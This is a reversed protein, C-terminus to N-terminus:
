EGRGPHPRAQKVWLTVSGDPSGEDDYKFEVDM